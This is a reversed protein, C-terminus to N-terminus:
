VAAERGQTALAIMAKSLMLTDLGVAIFRFGDRVRETIENPRPDVIHLGAAIGADRAARFVRTVAKEVEPHHTQGMLDMSGSLDYPGIFVADVGDVRCIDEIQNVADIHEIQLVVLTEDNADRVYAEFGAGYGHARCVGVGRIGLPPYKASAVACRADEVSKVMPVIVGAAGADLAWKFHVPDNVPLRCLPVCGTGQIAQMQSVAQPWDISGHELDLAIWDFGAQALIEAVVPHGIMNWTGISPLGQRLKAKVANKMLLHESERFPAASALVTMSGTLTHQIHYVLNYPLQVRTDLTLM